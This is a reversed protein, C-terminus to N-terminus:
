GVKPRREFEDIAKADSQWDEAGYDIYPIGREKLSAMFAVRTLGLEQAAKGAPIQRDAFLALIAEKRLHEQLGARVAPNDAVNVEIELKVAVKNYRQRAAGNRLADLGWGSLLLGFAGAALAILLSEALFERVLRWRGAGLAARLTTERERDTLRALLLNAVNTCGILLVFTVAGLLTFLIARVQRTVWGSVSIVQIELRDRNTQPYEHALEALVARMGAEAQSPTVGPKLRATALNGTMDRTGGRDSALPIWIPVGKPYTFRFGAPLVGVVTRKPGDNLGLQKGLINPDGHFRNQWFDYGLMVVQEARGTFGEEPSFTRGLVTKVGLVDFLNTTALIATDSEPYEGLKLSVNTQITLAMDEFVNNRRKWDLFDAVSPGTTAPRGRWGCFVNYLRDPERYPLPRFLVADAVSFVVCDAAIALALTAVAALTFVPSKSLSRLGYRLESLM